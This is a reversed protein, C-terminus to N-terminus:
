YRGKREREIKEQAEICYPTWPVADLRKKPIFEGTMQCIGYTKNDIRDLAEDIQYLMDQESGAFNLALERDYNDTGVDAMHLSYGSLDGSSERHSNLSDFELSSINKEIKNKLLMLVGEYHTLEKASLSKKPALNEKSPVSKSVVKKNVAPRAPAAKKISTKKSVSKSKMPKAIKVTKKSKNTKVSKSGSKSSPSKKTKSNLKKNISSPM